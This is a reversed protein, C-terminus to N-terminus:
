RKGIELLQRPLLEDQYDINGTNIDIDSNLNTEGGTIQNSKRMAYCTNGGRSGEIYAADM